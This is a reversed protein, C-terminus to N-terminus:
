VGREMAIEERLSEEDRYITAIALLKGGAELRVAVDRNAAVGDVRM